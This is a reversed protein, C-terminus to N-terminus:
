GTENPGTMRVSVYDSADMLSHHIEGWAILTLADVGRRVVPVGVLAPEARDRVATVAETQLPEEAPEEVAVVDSFDAEVRPEKFAARRLELNGRLISGTATNPRCTHTDVIVSIDM